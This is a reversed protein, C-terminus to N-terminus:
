VELELKFQECRSSCCEARCRVAGSTRLTPYTVTYETHVYTCHIYKGALSTHSIQELERIHPYPSSPFVSPGGDRMLWGIRRESKM